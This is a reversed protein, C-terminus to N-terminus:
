TQTNLLSPFLFPCEMKCVYFKYGICCVHNDSQMICKHELFAGLPQRKFFSIKALCVSIKRVRKCM